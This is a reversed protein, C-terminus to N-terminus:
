QSAEQRVVFEGLERVIVEHRLGIKLEAGDLADEDRVIKGALKAKTTDLLAVVTRPLSAPLMGDKLEKACRFLEFTLPIPQASKGAGVQLFLLAAKPRGAQERKWAKVKQKDTTLAARRTEVPRPEGFTTNLYFTFRDGQNLLLEVQKVAENLLAPNGDMVDQFAKLTSADRVVASRSGVARRVLRCAFDRLVRQVRHAAVVKRQKALSEDAKALRRLLEVEAESLCQYPRMFSLGEGVSQSFRSDLDRMTITTRSSVAVLSDPDALAPDLVDCLSKLQGPLTRPIDRDRPSSIFHYLGMLTPDRELELERLDKRLARASGRAWEGFLRHHYLSGVLQFPARVQEAVIATSERNCVEVLRGAWECPTAPRRDISKPAGALVFSILSFLDRFSWRKGTSIEQWRLITALSSRHPDRSLLSRSTCFPCREGAPCSGFPPWKGEDTAAALLQMAPSQDMGDISVLSEVDMPWVAAWRHGELPWCSGADPALGVAAVIAELLPRLDNSGNDIALSLAEDLVGRNICAVFIARDNGPGVRSLDQLLLQAASTAPSAPDEVSADQVLELVFPHRQHSLEAINANALRPVLALSFQRSLENVLQGGLGLESDLERSVEEVADSKGNGPGGVLLVARPVTPDGSAIGRAWARLRGLLPTEIVSGSPRGSEPDFLRRVGGSRDGSWDHLGKPFPCEKYGNMQEM